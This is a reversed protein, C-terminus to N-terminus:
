LKSASGVRGGGSIHGSGCMMYGPYNVKAAFAVEKELGNCIMLAPSHTGM